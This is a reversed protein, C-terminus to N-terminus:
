VDRRSNFYRFHARIDAVTNAGADRAAVYEAFPMEDESEGLYGGCRRCYGNAGEEHATMRCATEQWEQRLNRLAWDVSPLMAWLDRFVHRHGCDRPEFRDLFRM